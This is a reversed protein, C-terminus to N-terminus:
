MIPPSSRFWPMLRYATVDNMIAHTVTPATCNGASAFVSPFFNESVLFMVLKMRAIITARIVTIIWFMCTIWHGVFVLFVFFLVCFVVGM